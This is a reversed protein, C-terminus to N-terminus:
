LTSIKELRLNEKLILALTNYTHYFDNYDVSWCSSQQFYSIYDVKTALFQNKPHVWIGLEWSTRFSSSNKKSLLRFSVKLTKCTNATLILILWYTVCCFLSYQSLCFLLGSGQYIHGSAQWVRPSFKLNLM